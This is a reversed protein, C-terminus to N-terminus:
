RRPQRRSCRRAPPKTEARRRATAHRTNMVAAVGGAKQRHGRHGRDAGDETIWTRSGHGAKCPVRTVVATRTRRIAEHRCGRAVRAGARRDRSARWSRDIRRWRVRNAAWEDHDDPTARQRFARYRIARSASTALRAIWRRIRRRICRDMRRRHPSRHRPEGRHDASPWNDPEVVGRGCGRSGLSRIGVHLGGRGLRAGIYSARSRARDVSRVDDHPERDPLALCRRRQRAVMMVSSPSSASFKDALTADVLAPRRSPSAPDQGITRTRSLGRQDSPAARARRARKPTGADLKILSCKMPAQRDDVPGGMPLACPTSARACGPSGPRAAWRAACTSRPSRIGSRRSADPRGDHGARDRGPARHDAGHGRVSSTKVNV